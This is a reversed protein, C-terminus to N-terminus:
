DSEPDNFIPSNRAFALVEDGAMLHAPVALSRLGRALLPDNVELRRPASVDPSENLSDGIGQRPTAIGAVLGLVLNGYRRGKLIGPESVAFVEPPIDYDIMQMDHAAFLMTALEARAVNLPPKDACNVLYLGGPKLKSLVLSNFQATRLHSPTAADAFVDRIIVDQSQNRLTELQARADGGRLRLRPAKPLDFWKRAFDLLEQDIDIGIQRSQPRQSELARAMTSGASGLHTVSLPGSPLKEIIALFIEMYEFVVNSPDDLDIFSSPAGDLMVTMCRSNDRDLELTITAYKTHVPASPLEPVASTLPKRSSSRSARPPM